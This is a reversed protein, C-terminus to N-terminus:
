PEGLLQATWGSLSFVKGKLAPLNAKWAPRYNNWMKFPRGDFHPQEDMSVGALTVHTAKRQLAYKVAYLGSSGSNAKLSPWRWDFVEDVLPWPKYSVLHAAKCKAFEEPHLTIHVDVPGFENAAQNVGIILQYDKRDIRSLDARASASSGIVLVRM